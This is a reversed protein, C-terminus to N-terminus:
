IDQALGTHRRLFPWKRAESLGRPVGSPVAVRQRLFQVMDISTLSTNAWVPSGYLVQALPKAEYVELVAPIYNHGNTYFFESNRTDM